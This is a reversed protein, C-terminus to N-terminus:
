RAFTGNQRIMNIEVFKTGSHDSPSYRINHGGFNESRMAELAKHIGARTPNAGAQQMARLMIRAVLYGELSNHTFVTEGSAKM